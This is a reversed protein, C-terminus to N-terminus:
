AIAPLRLNSKAKNYGLAGVEAMRKIGFVGRDDGAAVTALV